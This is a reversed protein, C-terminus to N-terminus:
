DDVSLVLLSEGAPSYIQIQPKTVAPASRSLALLKTHDRMIALLANAGFLPVQSSINGIPGGYRCGAIIYEALDPLKQPISYCQQRRYFVNGEQMAQWSATPHDVTAM